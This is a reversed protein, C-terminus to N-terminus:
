PSTSQRSIHYKAAKRYLTMRSWKLEQAAKSKNWNTAVLAAVLRSREDRPAKAVAVVQARVREPLDALSIQRSSLGLYAGELVNKLERVNGPWDYTCLGDMADVAFSEVERGFQQNLEGRFFNALLPIDEKRERLPPLHVRAVNIRFYLDKRFRESTMSDDLDRNTASIFRVDISATGRGGLPAIEKNEIVRLIKAQAYPSMDGIEDFFVTGKDAHKLQGERRAYAGTFAGREYGFLESELLTDPIAACNICVFPRSQRPSAAHISRAALEKGTGTEGTILVSADTPAIRTIYEKIACLKPSEGILFKQLPCAASPSAGREAASMVVKSAFCTQIIKNLDDLRPPYRLYGNTGANLASIALDESSSRVMLVIQLCMGTQRIEKIIDINGWDGDGFTGLVLLTVRSRSLLAAISERQATEIVDFDREHLWHHLRHRLDSDAEAILAIVRDNRM